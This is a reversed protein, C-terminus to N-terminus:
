RLKVRLDLAIAREVLELPLDDSSRRPPWPLELWLCHESTLRRVARGRSELLELLHELHAEASAAHFSEGTSYVWSGPRTRSAGDITSAQPAISASAHLGLAGSVQEPDLYRGMAHLEAAPETQPETLGTTTM